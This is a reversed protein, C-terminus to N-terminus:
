KNGYLHRIKGAVKTSFAKKERNSQCSENFLLQDHFYPINKSEIRNLQNNQRDKHLYSQLKITILSILYCIGKLRM